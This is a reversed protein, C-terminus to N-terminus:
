EKYKCVKLILVIAKYLYFQIQQTDIPKKDIM